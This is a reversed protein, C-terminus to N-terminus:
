GIASINGHRSFPAPQLNKLARARLLREGFGGPSLSDPAVSQARQIEDIRQFERILEEQGILPGQMDALISPPPRTNDVALTLKFRGACLREAAKEAMSDIFALSAMKKAAETERKEANAQLWAPSGFVASRSRAAAVGPAEYDAHAKVSLGFVKPVGPITAAPAVPEPLWTLGDSRPAEQSPAERHSGARAASQDRDFRARVKTTLLTLDRSDRALSQRLWEPAENQDLSQCSKLQQKIFGAEVGSEVSRQHLLATKNMMQDVAKRCGSLAQMWAHSSDGERTLLDQISHVYLTASHEKTPTGVAQRTDLLETKGPLDFGACEGALRIFDRKHAYHTM